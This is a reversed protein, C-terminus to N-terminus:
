GGSGAGGQNVDPAKGASVAGQGASALEFGAVKLQGGEKVFRVAYPVTGAGAFTAVGAVQATDVGNVNNRVAVPMTTDQFAGWTKVTESAKAIDERRIGTTRAHAAEVNGAALDAAFQRAAERAPRTYAVAAYIGGGFLGWLGLSLLGLILGIVAMPRGSYRPNSTARIGVIGFVVALLGTIVPVCGLIGCVLSAVAAGSTSRQPPMSYAAGGPPPPAYAPQAPPQPYPPQPPPVQSM